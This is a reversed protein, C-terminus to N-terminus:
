GGLAKLIADAKAPGVGKISMLAKKAAKRDVQTTGQVEQLKELNDNIEQLMIMMQNFMGQNM